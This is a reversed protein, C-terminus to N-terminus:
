PPSTGVGLGTHLHTLHSPQLPSTTLLHPSALRFHRLMDTQVHPLQLLVSQRDWMQQSIMQSLRMVTEYVELGPPVSLQTSPRYKAYIWVQNLISIM